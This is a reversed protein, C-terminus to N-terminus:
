VTRGPVGLRSLASLRRSPLPASMFPRKLASPKGGPSIEAALYRAIIACFTVRMLARLACAVPQTGGAVVPVDPVAVAGGVVRGGAHDVLARRARHEDRPLALPHPPFRVAPHRHV